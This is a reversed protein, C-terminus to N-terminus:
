NQYEPKAHSSVEARFSSKMVRIWDLDSYMPALTVLCALPNNPHVALYKCAKRADDPDAFTVFATSVPELHSPPKSRQETILTTLLNLKTTYYDISPVVQGRFVHELNILPQYADLSSRPLSLLADWITPQPRAGASKPRQTPPYEPGSILDPNEPNSRQNGLKGLANLSTRSLAKKSRTTLSDKLGFEEVFPGLVRILQEMRVEEDLSEEAGGNELGAPTSKHRRAVGVAKSSSHVLGKKAARREAAVKVATLVKTALKIHATELLRLIEERREMLSALETMKRAITVREILPKTPEGKSDTSLARSSGETSRSKDKPLLPNIHSPLRKARNFIFAFSKNLFGPQTSSTLGMSPKEVKRTMYYEFYEKLQKEDRLSSPVNSVMITRCRLGRNPHNRDPLQIDTFGYQPHPHPYYTDTGNDSNVERAIADIEASRLEFAGKCIWLLTAM